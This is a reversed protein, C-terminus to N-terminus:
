EVNNRTEPLEPTSSVIEKKIEVQEENKIFSKFRKLNRVIHHGVLYHLILSFFGALIIGLLIYVLNDKM